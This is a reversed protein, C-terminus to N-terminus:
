AGMMLFVSEMGVGAASGGPITVTVAGSTNTATVGAGVFDISTAATTLNVGEDKVTIPATATTQKTTDPFILGHTGPTGEIKINGTKVHLKEIPDAIGIGLYGTFENYTFTTSGSYSGGKNYIVSGGISTTGVTFASTPPTFDTTYEATGKKIRLSDIYGNYYETGSSSSRGIYVPYSNNLSGINTATNGVGNVYLKISTGNYVCAIHNWANLNLARGTINGSSTSWFLLNSNYIAVTWGQNSTNRKSILGGPTSHSNLPKIWMEITFPSTDFSLVSTDPTSIYSGDGGIYLSSTGFKYESTSLKANSGTVTFPLAYMSEDLITTSNNAGEYNSLLSIEVDGAFISSGPSYTNILGTSNNIVITSGDVKVGGLISNSAIPLTYVAPTGSLDAYAGSTAVASLTPTGSLDAYLGSTAVTALTPKGSLDAYSGSTAVASLTPRGSLDSYLGSTAVTALTPKNLLNNYDTTGAPGTEGQIGQIGQIGQPGQPGEPGQIGQIGQPGQPGVIQGVDFWASGNWVYLDGDSDVVYADNFANNSSSLLGPNAVSGKFSISTGAAGAPGQIGTEGQIGQPGQPGQIGQIGQPGQAGILSALWQAETGVFGGNVAVTYASDGQPGQSGTPGTPGAPGTDGQPGTPGTAGQIGQPGQPGAPGTDGQIGQPGQSGTAGTLGQIGQPGAPGTEGQIGQIGQPGQTILYDLANWADVGNGIKFKRTDTELGLERDALVPNVLTWNTSTDGRFQIQVAM